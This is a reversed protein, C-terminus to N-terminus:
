PCRRCPIGLIQKALGGGIPTLAQFTCQLPVGVRMPAGPTRESFSMVVAQLRTNLRICHPTGHARCPPLYRHGANFIYSTSWLDIEIRYTEGPNM